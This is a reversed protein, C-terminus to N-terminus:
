TCISKLIVSFSRMNWFWALSNAWFLTRGRAAAQAAALARLSEGVTAIGLEVGRGELPRKIAATEVPRTKEMIDM